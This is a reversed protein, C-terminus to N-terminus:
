KGADLMCVLFLRFEIDTNLIEHAVYLINWVCLYSLNCLPRRCMWAVNWVNQFGEDMEIIGM